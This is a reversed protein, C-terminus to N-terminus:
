NLAFFSTRESMGEKITKNMLANGEFEWESNLVKSRLAVKPQDPM